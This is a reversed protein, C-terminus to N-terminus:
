SRRLEAEFIALTREAMLKKGFLKRVNAHGAEALATRHQPADMLTELVDALEDANGPEVLLGGGTAKILEPFAGHSPQVVPVGNAMAELVYLGKPEQYVTPVSLVDLSNLFSIKESHSAPSGIHQFASGLHKAEKQVQTFYQRDRIGLYGGVKLLTNPRRNHLIRFALILHHLGKEPCIRAFYGITFRNNKRFTPQGVHGDLEIGLPLLHFKESPLQLYQSMLNHYYRTHVLFGDFQQARESITEIARSRFPETMSELFIDDGQLTCLIKGDYNEKLLRLAGVLLVNSFCVIDPRLQNSLLEVLEQVKYKHPGSEGELMSLTMGGLLHANNSLGFRSALDIVWPHDLWRTFSRPVSRWLRSHYELYVNIGGFYVQPLSVNQEDVRIPTYVPILSIEAGQERLARAWTNDHMCSGCFMGAGGATIIAIHM